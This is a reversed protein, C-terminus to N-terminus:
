SVVEFLHFFVLGGHQKYLPKKLIPVPPIATCLYEGVHQPCDRLPAACLLRDEVTREIRVWVFLQGVLGKRPNGALVHFREPVTSLRVDNEAMIVNGARVDM